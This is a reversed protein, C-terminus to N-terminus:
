YDGWTMEVELLLLIKQNIFNNSYLIEEMDLWTFDVNNAGWQSAGVSTISKVVLGFNKGPLFLLILM